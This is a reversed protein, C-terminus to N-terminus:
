PAPDVMFGAAGDCAHAPASVVAAAPVYPADAEALTAAPLQVAMVTFLAAGLRLIRKM